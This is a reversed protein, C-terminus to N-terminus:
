SCPLLVFVGRYRLSTRENPLNRCRHSLRLHWAERVLVPLQCMPMAAAVHMCPPDCHCCLIWSVRSGAACASCRRAAACHILVPAALLELSAWRSHQNFVDVASRRKQWEASEMVGNWCAHLRNHVLPQGFHTVAGEAYLNREQVAEVPMGLKRALADMWTNAVLMGQPGGFGRFATNSAQNTRCLRGSIRVAPIDFACDSHLIARDM